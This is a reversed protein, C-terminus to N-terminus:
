LSRPPRAKVPILEIRDVGVYYDSSVKNKGTVTITLQLPGPNLDATGLRFRFVRVTSAHGDFTRAPGRGLRVGVQAYDPAQTFNIYVDYRGGRTVETRLVLRAGVQHIAWYLQANGGWDPGFETMDQHILTGETISAADILREGEIVRRPPPLGQGMIACGLLMSLM